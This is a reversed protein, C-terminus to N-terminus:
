LAKEARFLLMADPECSTGFRASGRLDSPCNIKDGDLDTTLELLLATTYRRSPSTGLDVDAVSNVDIYAM